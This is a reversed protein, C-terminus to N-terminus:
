RGTDIDIEDEADSTLSLVYSRQEEGDEDPTLVAQTRRRRRGRRVGGGDHISSSSTRSIRSMAVTQQSFDCRHLGIEKVVNWLVSWELAQINDQIKGNKELTMEYDFTIPLLHIDVDEQLTNMCKYKVPYGDRIEIREETKSTGDNSDNSFMYSEAVNRGGREGEGEEDDEEEVIIDYGRSSPLRM